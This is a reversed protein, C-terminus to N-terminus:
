SSDQYVPFKSSSYNLPPKYRGPTGTEWGLRLCFCLIEAEIKADGYLCLSGCPLLLSTSTWELLHCFFMYFQGGLYLILSLMFIICHRVVTHCRLAKHKLSFGQMSNGPGIDKPGIWLLWCAEKRRNRFRLTKKKKEDKIHFILYHTILLFYFLILFIFSKALEQCQPPGWYTNDKNHFINVRPCRNRKVPFKCIVTIIFSNHTWISICGRTANM